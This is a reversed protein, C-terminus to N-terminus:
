AAEANPDLYSAPVNKLMQRVQIARGATVALGGHAPRRWTHPGCIAVSIKPSSLRLKGFM